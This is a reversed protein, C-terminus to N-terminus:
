LSLTVINDKGIEAWIASDVVVGVDTRMTLSKAFDFITPFRAQRKM